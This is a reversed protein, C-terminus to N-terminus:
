RKQGLNNLIGVLGGVGGIQQDCSTSWRRRDFPVGIV